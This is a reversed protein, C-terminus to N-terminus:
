IQRLCRQLVFMLKDTASDIVDSVTQQKRDSCKKKKWSHSLISCYQRMGVWEGSDVVMFVNVGYQDCM